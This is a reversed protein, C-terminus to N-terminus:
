ASDARAGECHSSEASACGLIRGLVVPGDSCIEWLALGM